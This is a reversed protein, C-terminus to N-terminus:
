PWTRSAATAIEPAVAGSNIRATSAVVEMRYPGDAGRNTIKVRMQNTIEGPVLRSPPAGLGRLLTVDASQKRALVATLVAVLVLLIAPYLVVRPRLLRGPPGRHPVAFQLPDAGPAQGASGHGTALTSASRAPSASWKCATASTSARLAPTPACAATSATARRPKARAPGATGRPEGRRCDYSVILSDRDFMVSQFRGYPCAVICTQERFYSFDFLMLGTVGLMLLFPLPHEVPSRRVWRALAEVGVFYALFTHALYM